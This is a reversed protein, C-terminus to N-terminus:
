RGSTIGSFVEIYKVYGVTALHAQKNACARTLCTLVLYLTIYLLIYDYGLTGLSTKRSLLDRGTYGYIKWVGHSGSISRWSPDHLIERVMFSRTSSWTAMPM